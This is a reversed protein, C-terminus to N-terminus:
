AHMDNFLTRKEGGLCFKCHFAFNACIKLTGCTGGLVKDLYLVIGDSRFTGEAGKGTLGTGVRGSAVVTKIVTAVM